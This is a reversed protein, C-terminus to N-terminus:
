SAVHPTHPESTAAQKLVIAQAWISKGKQQKPWSSSNMEGYFTKNKSTPLFLNQVGSPLSSPSPLLHPWPQYQGLQISPFVLTLNDWTQVKIGSLRTRRLSPRQYGQGHTYIRSLSLSLSPPLHLLYSLITNVGLFYKYVSLEVLCSTAVWWGVALFVLQNHLPASHLVGMMVRSHMRWQKIAWYTMPERVSFTLSCGNWPFFSYSSIGLM